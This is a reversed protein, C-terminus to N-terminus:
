KGKKHTHLGVPVLAFEVIEVKGFRPEGGATTIAGRLNKLEVRIDAQDLRPKIEEVGRWPIPQGFWLGTEREDKAPGVIRAAYVRGGEM